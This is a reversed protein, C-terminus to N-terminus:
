RFNGFEVTVSTAGGAWDVPVTLSAESAVHQEVFGRLASVRAFATPQFCINAGFSVIGVQLWRNRWPVLLPGGSDGNCVSENSGAMGACITVPLINNGLQTACTDNSIIEATLRKLIPSGTGPSNSTRGWGIVTADTGPAALAARDDDILEVRPYVVPEVLEILAIDNEVFASAAFNPHLIVRRIDLRTGETRLDTAGALVKVTSVDLGGDVCHAATLVWRAAIFTGGCFQFDTAATVLAVQFPFEGGAAQTGGIIRAPGAVTRGGSSSPAVLIGVTNTWGITLEQAVAYTGSADLGEFRYAGASDTVTAVEGPDRARDGDEDLFVVMDPIGLEDPDRERDADADHWVTGVVQNAGSGTRSRVTIRGTTSATAGRADTVTLTPTYAGAETYTHVVTSGTATAGDGFTWAYGVITGDPDSSSSGDFRVELPADGESRDVTFAAVPRQNPTGTPGPEVPGDGGCGALAAALLVAAAGPARIRELIGSGLRM